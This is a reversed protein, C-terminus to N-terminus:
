GNGDEVKPRAAIMARYVNVVVTGFDHLAREGAEVMAQTPAERTAVFGAPLTPPTAREAEAVARGKNWWFELWHGAPPPAVGQYGSTLAGDICATFLEQLRPDDLPKPLAASQDAEPM